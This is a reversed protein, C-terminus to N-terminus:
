RMPRVASAIAGRMARQCGSIAVAIRSPAFMKPAVASPVAASLVGWGVGVVRVGCRGAGGGCGECCGGGGLAQYVCVLGRMKASTPKHGPTAVGHLPTTFIRHLVGGCIHLYGVLILKRVPDHHHAAGCMRPHVMQPM